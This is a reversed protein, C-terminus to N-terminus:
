SPAIFRKVASMVQKFGRVWTLDSRLEVVLAPGQVAAPVKELFFM